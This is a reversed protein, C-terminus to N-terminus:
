RFKLVSASQDDVPVVQTQIIESSKNAVVVSQVGQPVNMLVFGGGAVGTQSVQGQPDFYVVNDRSYNADHSLYVDFEGSSVFGVIMGANPNINARRATQLQNIWSKSILPVHLFDMNDEYVQQTEVYDQSNPHVQMLSLRSVAPLNIEAFGLVDLQQSLSQIELQAREANGTFADFVKVEIKETMMTATMEAISIADEDVIVNAHSLYANGRLAMLSQFGSPLHIFAFFGNESTSKLNPDPILLSNFYIPQYFESIEAAVSVGAIPKGNETIQGWVISGTEPVSSTVTQDAIIQKLAKIMKEPFLPYQKEQGSKVLFLAPFYDKADTRLLGWSGKMIQEFRFIGNEDTKDEVDASAFLVKTAVSKEKGGIARDTSLRTPNDYFSPFRSAISNNIRQITIKAKGNNQDKSYSSLRYSGRGLIDGTNQDILEAYISGSLEPVQIRYTSKSHDFRADERKVDDEYRAVHIAWQPGAPLGGALEIEGSVQFQSPASDADGDKKVEVDATQISRANVRNGDEDVKEVLVKSELDTGTNVTLRAQRIKEEALDRFSPLSWDEDLVKNKEQAALVRKQDKGSLEDVWARDAQYKEFETKSFSMPQLVVKRATLSQVPNKVVFQQTTENLNQSGTKSKLLAWEDLKEEGYLEDFAVRPPEFKSTQITLGKSMVHMTSRQIFSPLMTASVAVALLFMSHPIVVKRTDM